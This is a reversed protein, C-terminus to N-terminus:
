IVPRIEHRNAALERLQNGSGASEDLAADIRATFNTWSYRRSHLHGRVGMQRAGEPDNVLQAMRDGFAQAAPEELFGNVGPIVTERPGGSNVAVVPKGFAMAELPVIGWDENFATFLVAYCTRYLDSLEADSPFIRFEVPLNAAMARLEALYPESKKDVIGAIVLRFNGAAPVTALLSRFAEIGLQINKTWMIRGAILFFREFIESPAPSDVGLGVQLVEM